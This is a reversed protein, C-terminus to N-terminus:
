LTDRGYWKKQLQSLPWRWGRKRAQTNQKQAQALLVRDFEPNWYVQRNDLKEQRQTFLNHFTDIGKSKDEYYHSVAEKVDPHIYQRHFNKCLTAINEPLDPDFDVKQAYRQPLIHHREVGQPDDCEHPIHALRALCQHHDREDIARVQGKTLAMVVDPAIVLAWGEPVEEAYTQPRFEQQQIDLAEYILSWPTETEM